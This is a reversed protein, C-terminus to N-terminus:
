IRTACTIGGTATTTGHVTYSIMCVLVYQIYMPFVYYTTCLACPICVTSVIIDLALLLVSTDQSPYHYWLLLPILLVVLKPFGQLLVDRTVCTIGGTATTTTGHVTYSIMCVLVCLICSCIDQTTSCTCHICTTSDYTDHSTCLIIDTACTDQSHLFRHFVLLVLESFVLLISSCWRWSVCTIGGTATTTGHVTYSIM